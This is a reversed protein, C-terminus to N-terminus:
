SMRRDRNCRKKETWYKCKVYLSFIGLIFVLVSLPLKFFRGQIKTKDVCFHFTSISFSRLLAFLRFHIHHVHRRLFHSYNYDMSMSSPQFLAPVLTSYQIIHHVITFICRLRTQHLFNLSFVMVISLPIVFHLCISAADLHFDSWDWDVRVYLSYLTFFYNLCIFM